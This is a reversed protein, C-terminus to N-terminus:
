DVENDALTFYSVSAFLFDLGGRRIIPPDGLGTPAVAGMLRRQVAHALLTEKRIEPPKSGISSRPDAIICSHKPCSCPSAGLQTLAAEFAAHEARDDIELAGDIAEEGFDVVVCLGEGPGGIGVLDDGGDFASVM